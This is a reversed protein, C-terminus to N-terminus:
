IVKKNKLYDVAQEAKKSSHTQKDLSNKLEKALAITKKSTALHKAAGKDEYQTVIKITSSSSNSVM